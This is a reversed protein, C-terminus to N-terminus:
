KLADHRLMNQVSVYSRVRLSTFIDKKPHKKYDELTKEYMEQPLRMVAVEEARIGDLHFEIGSPGRSNYWVNIDNDPYNEEAKALLYSKITEIVIPELSDKVVSLRDAMEPFGIVTEFQAKETKKRYFEGRDLEPLVELKLNKSKWVLRIKFEPKHKKTCHPCVFSMFTGNLIKELVDPEQDLDIEEEFEISFSSGCLCNITKKV